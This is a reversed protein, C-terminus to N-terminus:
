NLLFKIESKVMAEIIICDIDDSFAISVDALDANLAIRVRDSIDTEFWESSLSEIVSMDEGPASYEVLKELPLACIEAWEKQVAPEAFMDEAILLFLCNEGDTVGIITEDKESVKDLRHAIYEMLHWSVALYDASALGIWNDYDRGQLNDSCYTGAEEEGNKYLTLSM